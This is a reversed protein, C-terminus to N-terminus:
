ISTLANFRWCFQAEVFSPLNKGTVDYVAALHLATQGSVDRQNLRAKGHVILEHVQQVRGAKAALHLATQKAADAVGVDPRCRMLLQM